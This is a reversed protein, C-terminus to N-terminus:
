YGQAEWDFTRAVAVGANFFQITFGATSRGALTYSDGAAGGHIAILVKPVSSGDPGGNFPAAFTVTQGGAPAGVAVGSDIRDPVDVKFVFDSLLAAVTGDATALLVRADFVKGTYSGLVWNRWGDWLTGDQSTNIQPVISVKTGLDAGITDALALIDPVTLLDIANVDYGVIAGLKVIVTCTAPATLTVRAATPIQYSGAAVVGGFYRADAIPLVDDAALIDGAPALSLNGGVMATGTKTGSWGDAAAAYTAIVNSVLASNTVALATWDTSYVEGGHPVSFHAAVWYTGDGIIPSETLPTRAVIMASAPDGGLRIEYDIPRGRPDVIPNWNLRSVGAVYASALGTVDPLPDTLAVGRLTYAFSEVEDLTQQGGGLTNFSPFKFYVTQGIRDATFAYRVVNGDLRAFPSGPAHIGIPSGYAGRVLGTLEYQGADRFLTATQYALFEGDVYCLTNLALLGAQDTSLLEGDSESIDVYLQSANDITPGNVAKPVTDVGGMLSGIRMKGAVRTPLRAFTANDTSVWVEAGGWDDSAGSLAIWVEMNTGATLLGGRPEFIVPANINGPDANGRSVFGANVPVARAAMDGILGPIDEATIHFVSDDEEEVELVRVPYDVLGQAPDDLAVIDFPELLEGPSRMRWEYTAQVGLQRALALDAIRHAVVGSTIFDGQLSPGPRLGYEAIHADNQALAPLKNYDNARETYEITVQNYLDSPDAVTVQLPGEDGAGPLLVSDDITMVPTLDPTYTLSSGDAAMGTVPSDAYPMVKIKGDSWFVDSITASLWSGLIDRAANQGTLAPSMVLGAAQCFTTYATLDGIMATPLGAGWTANTLLEALCWAPSTDFVVNTASGPSRVVGAITAFPESTADPIAYTTTWAKANAPLQFDALAAAIGLGMVEFNFNPLNPSEGLGMKAVNFVALGNYGVAKDPHASLIYSWPAQGSAGTQITVNGTQPPTEPTSTTAWLKAVTQIPGVCMGYSVTASYTYTGSQGKVQNGGGLGGKGGKGGSANAVAAADTFLLLNGAVRNTGLVVAVPTGNLSTSAQGGMASIQKPAVANTGGSAGGGFSM